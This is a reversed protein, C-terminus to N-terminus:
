KRNMKFDCFVDVRSDVSVISVICRFRIKRLNLIIKVIREFLWSTDSM